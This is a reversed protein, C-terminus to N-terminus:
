FLLREGTVIEPIYVLIIRLIFIWGPDPDKDGNLYPYYLGAFIIVTFLLELRFSM